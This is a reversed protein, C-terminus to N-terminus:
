KRPVPVDPSRRPADRGGEDRPSANIRYPTVPNGPSASSNSRHQRAAECDHIARLIPAPATTSPTQQGEGQEQRNSRSVRDIEGINLTDKCASCIDRSYIVVEDRLNTFVNM